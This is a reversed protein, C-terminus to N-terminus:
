YRDQEITAKWKYLTSIERQRQTEARLTASISARAVYQTTHEKRVCSQLAGCKTHPITPELGATRALELGSDKCERETPSRGKKTHLTNNHGGPQM